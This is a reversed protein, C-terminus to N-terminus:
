KQSSKASASGTTKTRNSYINITSAVWHNENEKRAYGGIYKGAEIQSLKGEVGDIRIKTERTVFFKRESKGELLVFSQGIDVFKVIGNFPIGRSGSKTQSIKEGQAATAAVSLNCNGSVLIALLCILVLNILSFYSFRTLFHHYIDTKGFRFIM